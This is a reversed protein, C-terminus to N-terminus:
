TKEASALGPFTIKAAVDLEVEAKGDKDLLGSREAGDVTYVYRQFPIPDGNEDVLTITTPQKTPDSSSDSASDASKLKVKDGDIKAEAALSVTASSGKLFVKDDSLGLIQSKAKIKVKDDGLSVSGGSGKVVITPSDIEIRDPTLHISSKGCRIVVGVESTIETAGTSSLETVGEVHLM